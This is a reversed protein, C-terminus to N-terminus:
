NKQEKMYKALTGGSELETVFFYHFDDEFFDLLRTTGANVSLRMLDIMSKIKSKDSVSEKPLKRIAVDVKQSLHTGRLVQSKSGEGLVEDSVEYFDTIKFDRSAQLLIHKWELM